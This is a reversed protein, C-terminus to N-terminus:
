KKLKWVHMGDMKRRKYSSLFIKKGDHSQNEKDEDELSNGLQAANQGDTELDGM